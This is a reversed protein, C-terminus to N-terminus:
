EWSFLRDAIVYTIITWVVLGLLDVRLAWLSTGQNFILRMADTLYTLPFFDTIVKLWHPFGDRPFFIGSLFLQPLQLLQALPAAQNEDKASGAVAFGMALFVAVGLTVFVFLEFVNGLLHLSFLGIGILTLLTLQALVTIYRTFSQAILFYAANIPTAQIRRLAGSSKFSVFVFEVSFIGNQMIMMALLGPLIFDFYGLNNTKVGESKVSVIQPSKTIQNNINSAIQGLILSATQGSGPRAQNYYTQVASPTLQGSQREGFNKPIIIELDVKGKGLKDRADSESTQNVSFANVKKVADLYSHSLQSNSYDTVTVKINGGSGNSNSLLGFVAVLVLPFFLSFFLATRNRFYMKMSAVTLSKLVRWSRNKIIPGRQKGPTAKQPMLRRGLRFVVLVAVAILVITGLHM